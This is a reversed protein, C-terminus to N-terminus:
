KVSWYEAIVGKVIMGNVMRRVARRWKQHFRKFRSRTMTHPVHELPVSFDM